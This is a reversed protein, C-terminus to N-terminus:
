KASFLVRAFSTVHTATTSALDGIAEVTIKGTYKINSAVPDTFAPDEVNCTAAPTVLLKINDGPTVNYILAALAGEGDQTATEASPLSGKFYVTKPGGSGADAGADVTTGTDIQITAGAESACTGKLVGVALVGKSAEIPPNAANGQIASVLAGTLQANPLPTQARDADGSLQWEQELLTTYGAKSVRMNFPTDQPVKITYSGRPNGGTATTRGSGLDVTVGDVGAGGGGPAFDVVQGSQTVGSGGTGTDSGGGGDPTPTPTSSDDSSCGMFSVGLGFALLGLATLTKYTMLSM